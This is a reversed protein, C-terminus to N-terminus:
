EASKFTNEVLPRADSQPVHCQTCFYRKMSIKETPNGDADVYHSKGAMPSEQEKYNAKDHCKLCRNNKLNIRYKDVKHPILPPQQKYNRPFSERDRILKATTPPADTETLAKDGRLSKVEDAAAAGAAIFLPVILGALAMLITRKM